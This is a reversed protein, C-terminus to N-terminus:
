SSIVSLDSSLAVNFIHFVKDSAKLPFGTVLIMMMWGDAYM